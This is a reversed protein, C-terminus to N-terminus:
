SYHWFSSRRNRYCVPKQEFEWAVKKTAQKTLIHNQRTIIYLLRSRSGVTGQLLNSKFNSVAREWMKYLLDHFFPFLTRQVGRSGSEFGLGILFLTLFKKKKQKIRKELSGRIKKVSSTQLPHFSQILDSLSLLPTAPQTPSPSSSGLTWDCYSDSNLQLSEEKISSHEQWHAIGTTTRDKLRMTHNPKNALSWCCQSTEFGGAVVFWWAM